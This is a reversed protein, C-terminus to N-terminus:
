YRQKTVDMNVTSRPIVGDVQSLSKALARMCLSAVYRLGVVLNGVM